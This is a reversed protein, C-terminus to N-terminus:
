LYLIGNFLFCIDPLFGKIEKKLDPFSEYKKIHIPLDFRNLQYLKEPLLFLVEYNRLLPEAFVFANHLEGFDKSIIFLLKLNKKM